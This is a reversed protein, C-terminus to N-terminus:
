KGFTHSRGESPKQSRPLGKPADMAKSYVDFAGGKKKAKKKPPQSPVLGNGIMSPANEYDFAEEAPGDDKAAEADVAEREKRLEKRRARARQREAPAQKHHFRTTVRGGEAKMDDPFEGNDLMIQDAEFDKDAQEGDVPSMDGDPHEKRKNRGGLQRAIFVDDKADTVIRDAKNIYSHSPPKSPTASESPRDSTEFVSATLDPLPLTM